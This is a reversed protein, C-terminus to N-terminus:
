RDWRKLGLTRCGATRISMSNSCFPPSVFVGDFDILELVGSLTGSLERLAASAGQSNQVFVFGSDPVAASAALGSQASGRVPKKRALKFGLRM